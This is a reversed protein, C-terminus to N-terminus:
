QPGPRSRHIYPTHRATNRWAGTPPATFSARYAPATTWPARTDRRKTRKARRPLTRRHKRGATSGAATNEPATLLAEPVPTTLPDTLPGDKPTRGTALDNRRNGVAPQAALIAANVYHDRTTGCSCAWACVASPFGTLRSGSGGFPINRGIRSPDVVPRILCEGTNRPRGAEGPPRDSRRTRAPHTATWADCM